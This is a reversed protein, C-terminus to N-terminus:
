LVRGEGGGGGGPGGGNVEEKVEDEKVEWTWVCLNNKEIKHKRQTRIIKAYPDPIAHTHPLPEKILKDNQSRLHYIFHRWPGLAKIDLKVDNKKTM